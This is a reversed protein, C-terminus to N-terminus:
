MKVLLMREMACCIYRRRLSWEGLALSWVTSTSLFFSSRWPPLPAHWAARKLAHAVRRSFRGPLIRKESRGHHLGDQALAIAHRGGAGQVFPDEAIQADRVRLDFRVEGLVALFYLLGDAAVSAPAVSFRM